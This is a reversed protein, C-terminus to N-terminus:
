EKRLCKMKQSWEKVSFYEFVQAALNLHSADKFLELVKTHLALISSPVHGSM